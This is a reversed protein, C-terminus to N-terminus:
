KPSIIKIVEDMGHDEIPSWEDNKLWKTEWFPKSNFVYRSAERIFDDFGWTKTYKEKYSNIAIAEAM